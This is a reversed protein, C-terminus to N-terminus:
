AAPPNPPLAPSKEVRRKAGREIWARYAPWLTYAAVAVAAGLTDAVWDAVEAMRGPTHSQHWEDSAGFLSVLLVAVWAHRPAFGNRVVLTALLGFVAFHVLKDFGQVSPATVRSQGSATVILAALLVPWLWGRWGLDNPWRFRM